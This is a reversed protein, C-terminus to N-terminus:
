ICLYVFCFDSVKEKKNSYNIQSQVDNKENEAVIIITSTTISM